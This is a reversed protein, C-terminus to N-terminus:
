KAKEISEQLDKKFTIIEAKVKTFKTKDLDTIIAQIEDKDLEIISDEKVSKVTSIISLRKEMDVLTMGDPSTEMLVLIAGAYNEGWWSSLEKDEIKKNEIKAM